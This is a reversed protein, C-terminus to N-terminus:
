IHAQRQFFTSFNQFHFFFNELQFLKQFNPFAPFFKKFFKKLKKKQNEPIGSIKLFSGSTFNKRFFNFLKFNFFFIKHTNKKQNEHIKFKKFIGITLIGKFSAIFIKLFFQSFSSFIKKEWNFFFFNEM